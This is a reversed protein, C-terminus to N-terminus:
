EKMHVILKLFIPMVFPCYNRCQVILPGTYLLSKYPFREGNDNYYQRNKFLM